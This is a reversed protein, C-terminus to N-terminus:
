AAERTAAVFERLLRLAVGSKRADRAREIGEHLDAAAGALLLGFGANLDTASSYPSDDGGLVRDLIRANDHKDGGRLASPDFGNQVNAPLDLEDDLLSGGLWRYRHNIGVPLLEDFGRSNFVTTVQLEPLYESVSAMMAAAQRTATGIMQHTAGAPNLLPGLLNFITRFGLERRVAAAAKAAPHYLPAFLFCYGLHEFIRGSHYSSIEINAGAAELLDASGCSSSVSRNGHKATAVGCAAVVLSAATSINFSNSGDGGTGCCDFVLSRTHPVKIARRRLAAACGALEAVTEGKARLCSLFAAIQAPTVNGDAIEDVFLAAESFSLSERAALRALIDRVM